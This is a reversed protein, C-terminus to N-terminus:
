EDKNLKTTGIESEYEISDSEIRDSDDNHKVITDSHSKTYHEFNSGDKIREKDKDEIGTTGVEGELDLIDEEHKHLDITDPHSDTYHEFMSGEKIREKDKGEIGTTGIEGEFDTIDQDHKHKEMIDMNDTKTKM